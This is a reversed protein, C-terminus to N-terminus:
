LADTLKVIIGNYYSELADSGSGLIVSKAEVNSGRKRSKSESNIM